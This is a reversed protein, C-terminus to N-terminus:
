QQTQAAKAQKRAQATQARRIERELPALNAARIHWILDRKRETAIRSEEERRRDMPLTNLYLRVTEDPTRPTTPTTPGTTTTM